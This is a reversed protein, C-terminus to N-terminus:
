CCSEPAPPQRRDVCLVVPRHSSSGGNGHFALARKMFVRYALTDLAPANHVDGGKLHYAGWYAMFIGCDPQVQQQLTPPSTKIMWEGAVFSAGVASALLSMWWLVLGALRREEVAHAALDIPSAASPRLSDAM